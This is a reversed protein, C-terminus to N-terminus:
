GLRHKCLPPRIQKGYMIVPIAPKSIDDLKLYRSCGSIVSLWIKRDDFTAGSLGLYTGGWSIQNGPNGPKLPLGLCAWIAGLKKQKGPMETILLLGLYNWAPGLIRNGYSGTILLLKQYGRAAEMALVALQCQCDRTTGPLRM